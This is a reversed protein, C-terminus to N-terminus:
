VLSLDSRHDLNRCFFVPNDELTHDKVHLVLHRPSTPDQDAKLHGVISRTKGKLFPDFILFFGLLKVHDLLVAPEPDSSIDFHVIERAVQGHINLVDLFDDMIGALVQHWLTLAPHFEVGMGIHRGHIGQRFDFLQDGLCGLPPVLRHRDSVMAIHLAEWM